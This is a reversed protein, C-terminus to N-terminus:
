KEIINNNNMKRETSNYKILSPSFYYIGDRVKILYPNNVADKCYVISINNKILFKVDSCNGRLFKLAEEIRKAMIEDPGAPIIAYVPKEAVATFAIAKWPDLVAKGNLNDRIWLFDQFEEENIIHYYPTNIHSQYSLLFIALLMFLAIIRSKNKIWNLGKGALLSMFLMSYLLVREPYIFPVYNFFRYLAILGFLTTVTFGIVVEYRRWGRIALFFGLVFLATPIYGFEEPVGKFTAVATFILGEVGEHEIYALFQPIATLSALLITIFMRVDKEMLLLFFLAIFTVLASPPHEYLLFVSILFIIVYRSRKLFFASYLSLIILPLALSVPVFFAPGLYRVTTPILAVFFAAELGYHLKRALVYTLFTLLVSLFIPFYRFLPWWDIGILKFMSIFILFGIEPHNKIIGEGTFPNPFELTKYKLFANALTIRDWEDRHLPYQYERHPLYAFYASILLIILLPIVEKKYRFKM